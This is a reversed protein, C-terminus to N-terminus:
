APRYSSDVYTAPDILVAPDHGFAYGVNLARFHAEGCKIKWGESEFRLKDIDDSGKTECVLYHLRGPSEELVFAWDPNYNGLPTPIVFWGPLKLFLTIEARSDLFTAFNEEVESDCVVRDTISKSVEVVIPAVTDEQHAESFRKAEWYAGEIPHYVVRDVVENYLARNMADAARDIFVSPNVKLQNLRDCDRLIQVITARSLPVRRCLEGVVDPLKSAAVVDVVGRDRNGVATLGAAGMQIDAKGIRFRIPELDQIHNMRIVADAVVVDSDFQLNYTTRQSIRTWLEVFYPDDLVAPKLTLKVKDRKLDVIRKEFEVGVEEEIEKQLAGAFSSFAENAIVTLLNVEDAHCRDGNDM